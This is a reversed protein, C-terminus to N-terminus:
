CSSIPGPQRRAPLAPTPSSISTNLGVKVPGSIQQWFWRQIGGNANAAGALTVSSNSHVTQNGGAWATFSAAAGGSSLLCFVALLLAPLLDVGASKNFLFM